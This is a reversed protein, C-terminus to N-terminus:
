KGYLSDAHADHVRVQHERDLNSVTIRRGGCTPCRRHTGGILNGCGCRWPRPYADEDRRPDPLDLRGM